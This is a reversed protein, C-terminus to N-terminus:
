IGLFNENFVFRKSVQHITDGTVTSNRNYFDNTSYGNNSPKTEYGNEYDNEHNMTGSPYQNFNRQNENIPKISSNSSAQSVRRSSNGDMTATITTTRIRNKVDNFSEYLVLQDKNGINHEIFNRGQNNLLDSYNTTPPSPMQAATIITTDYGNQPSQRSFTAQYQQLEKLMEKSHIQQQENHYINNPQIGNTMEINGNFTPRVGKLSVTGDNTKDFDNLYNQQNLDNKTLQQEPHSPLSLSPEIVQNMTNLLKTNFMQNLNDVEDLNNTLNKQQTYQQLQQQQQQAQIHNRNAFKAMMRLERPYPTPSRMLRSSQDLPTIEQPSDSAFCIRRKNSVISNQRNASLAALSLNELATM